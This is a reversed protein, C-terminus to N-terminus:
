KRLWDLVKGINDSVELVLALFGIVVRHLGEGLRLHVGPYVLGFGGDDVEVLNTRLFASHDCYRTKGTASLVIVVGVTLRM